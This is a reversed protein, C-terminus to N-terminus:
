LRLHLLQEASAEEAGVSDNMSAVVADSPGSTFIAAMAAGVTATFVAYAVASAMPEALVFIIAFTVALAL